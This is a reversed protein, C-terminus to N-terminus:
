NASGTLATLYETLNAQADQKAQLKGRLDTWKDPSLNRAKMSKELDAIVINLAHIAHRISGTYIHPTEM